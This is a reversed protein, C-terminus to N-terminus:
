KLVSARCQGSHTQESAYAIGQTIDIWVIGSIDSPLEVPGKHLLLVRGSTREFSAYFFGLEFIVNQRSRRLEDNSGDAIVKDDPTLLVFVCDVRRVYSEFKEILTKGLSPQERLVVPEQWKLTNQIYNKLEYATAADHGHVIFALPTRDEPLLGVRSLAGLLSNRSQHKGVYPISKASAWSEAEPNAVDSSLLVIRLKDNKQLLRRAVAIGTFFGGRSEEATIGSTSPDNPLMVDIIAGDYTHPDRALAQGADTARTTGIGRDELLESIRQAFFVDDEVILIPM